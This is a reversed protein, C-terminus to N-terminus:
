RDKWKVFKVTVGTGPTSSIEFEDVLRRTGPLGLGLSNGTSFGDRMAMEVDKIGPGFDSAVVKLGQKRGRMVEGIEVTGSGAYNVINRALESIATAILAQEARGFGLQEALKRGRQRAAVVDADSAVACLAAANIATLTM